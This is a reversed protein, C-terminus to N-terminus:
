QENKRDEDRQRKARMFGVLSDVFALAGGFFCIAFTIFLWTKTTSSNRNESGYFIAIFM